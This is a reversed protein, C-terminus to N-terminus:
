SPEPDWEIVDLAVALRLPVTPHRDFFGRCVAEDVDDRYLTSHCVIASDDATATKVMGALRGPELKRM